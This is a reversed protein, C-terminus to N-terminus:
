KLVALMGPGIKVAVRVFPLMILKAMNMEDVLWRDAVIEAFAMGMAPNIHLEGFSRSVQFQM